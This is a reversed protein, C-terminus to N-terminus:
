LKLASVAAAYFGPARMSDGRKRLCWCSPPACVCVFGFCERM